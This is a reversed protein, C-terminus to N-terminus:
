APASRVLVAVTEFHATQPFMDFFALRELRYAEGLRQLDRALTSPECSVYLVAQPRRRLLAETVREDCGTRPPDLLVTAREAAPLGRLVADLQREVEAAIFRVRGPAGQANETARGVAEADSEIGIVEGAALDALTLAFVGSGCYADVLPGGALPAYAARLWTALRDLVPANVQFFSGAPVRFPRGLVTERLLTEPAACFALVQGDGARRLVLPDDRRHAPLRESERRALLEALRANLEAHAIPCHDIEIVTVNDLATYGWGALRTGAFVPALTIKNRYGYPAPAPEAAEVAPLARRGGVRTLLGQLQEIKIRVQEEPTLHQYRCGGCIGYYPCPPEARGRGPQLVAEIQARAFRRRRETVRVRLRDGVAAFPIFVTMGEPLTAVGDGGYAIARIEAEAAMPAFFANSFQPKPM